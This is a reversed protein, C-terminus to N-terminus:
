RSRRRLRRRPTARDGVDSSLLLPAPSPDGSPRYADGNPAASAYVVWHRRSLELLHRTEDPALEDAHEQCVYVCLPDQAIGDGALWQLAAVVDLPEPADPLMPPAAAGHRVLDQNVDALEGHAHQRTTIATALDGRATESRVLLENLEALVADLVSVLTTDSSVLVALVECSTDLSDNAREREAIANTLAETALSAGNDIHEETHEIHRWLAELNASLVVAEEADRQDLDAAQQRADLEQDLLEQLRIAHQARDAALSAVMQLSDVLLSPSSDLAAFSQIVAVEQDVIALRREAAARVRRQTDCAALWGHAAADLSCDGL